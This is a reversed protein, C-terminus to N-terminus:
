LCNPTRCMLVRQTSGPASYVIVPRGDPRLAAALNYDSSAGGNTVDLTGATGTTCEANGCDFVRLAGTATMTFVLPRGDSRVVLASQAPSEISPLSRPTVSSCAADACNKLVSTTNDGSVVVARNDSRVALSMLFRSAPGPGLDRLTGSSCSADNCDYLRPNSSIGFVRLLVVPTGNPRVALGAPTYSTSTIVREVGSTCPADNCVYLRTQGSNYEYYAVVPANNTPQVAVFSFLLFSGVNQLTRTVWSACNVDNCIYLRQNSGAGAAVVPIGDTRMALAGDYGTSIGRITGNSCDADACDWLFPGSRGILPRGDARVVVAHREGHSGNGSFSRMPHDCIPSGDAYVGILPTGRPCLAAVRLQIQDRNVQDRGIAGGGLSGGGILQCSWGTGNSVLVQGSPCTALGVTTSGGLSVNGGGVLGSGVVVSLSENALMSNTVGGTAISLAGNSGVELGVGATVSTGVGGDASFLSQCAWGSGTSGLVAGAPCSVLAVEGSGNGTNNNVAIGSASHTWLSSLGQAPTACFLTGDANIGVVAGSTCTGTIRRQLDSAHLGGVSDAESARIAYPASALALRPSLVEGDISIELWLPAGTLVSPTLATTTGLQAHVLGESATLGAHTESWASTGGTDADFLSFVFTHAGTVPAGNSRLNGTFAIRQPVAQALACPVVLLSVVALTRVHM